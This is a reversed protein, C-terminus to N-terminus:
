GRATSVRTNTTANRPIERFRTALAVVLLLLLQVVGQLGQRPPLLGAVGNLYDATSDLNPEPFSNTHTM